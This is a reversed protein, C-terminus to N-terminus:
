AEISGAKLEQVLRASLADVANSWDSDDALAKALFQSQAADWFWAQAIPVSAPLRHTAIFTNIDALGAPLGLQEFLQCVDHTILEM